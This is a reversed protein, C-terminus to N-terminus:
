SGQCVTGPLMKEKSVYSEIVEKLLIAEIEKLIVSSKVALGLNRDGPGGYSDAGGGRAFHIGLVKGEVNLLPSGSNGSFVRCFHGWNDNMDRLGTYSAAHIGVGYSNGVVLGMDNRLPAQNSLELPAVEEGVEKGNKMENLKILCFDHKNSCHLVEKCGVFEEVHNLNIGFKRCESDSALVHKNTLVLNKGVLFATGKATGTGTTAEFVSVAIEKEKEYQKLPIDFNLTPVKVQKPELAIYNTSHGPVQNNIRSRVNVTKEQSDVKANSLVLHQHSNVFDQAFLFSSMTMMLLIILSKM